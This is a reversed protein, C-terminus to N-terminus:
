RKRKRRRKRKRKRRRRRRRLTGVKTYGYPAVKVTCFGAIGM